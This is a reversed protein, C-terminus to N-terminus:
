APTLPTGADSTLPAGDDATLVVGPVGGGGPGSPSVFQSPPALAFELQEARMYLNGVVLGSGSAGTVLLQMQKFSLIEQWALQYQRLKALTGGWPSSGWVMSGWLSPPTAPGNVTVQGLIDGIEDTAVATVQSQVPLALSMLTELMANMSVDMNDPLLSTQWSWTLQAGNEVYSSTIDPIVQSAWLANAIGSGFFVFGHDTTGQYPVIVSAPFTHPGSWTKLAFDYWYEQVAQVPSDGNKVSVRYINQNFAACMRSPNIANIFPLSVGDGHAGIPDHINGMLDVIRMGDPAIFATGEPTSCITLPALTGAGGNLANVVIGNTFSADGTIQQIQSDGQFCLIAQVIGGQTSSFLGQAGLATVPLGNRFLLAQTANTVQCPFGADSFTVGAGVAFYARGNFQVVSVPVSALANGNTNGSGWLPVTATGGTVTLTVGAGGSTAAKSLTLSLGGVAIAAITTNAPIGSGAIAMGVQWGAQLVNASLSDILTSSHTTGTHTADSFGSIDLWGFFPGTGGAFGPHTVIVRSGVVEMIPPVWDGAASQTTPLSAAGGPITVTEFVGTEVNYAFPVDLGAYTGTTDACMGYLVNGPCCLAAGQGPTALGSGALNDLQLSAPRPVWQGKTSPNPILNQLSAMAGPFANTADQADSLGQGRFALARGPLPSPM